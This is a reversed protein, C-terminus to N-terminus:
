GKRRAAHCPCPRHGHGRWGPPHGVEGSLNLKKKRLSVDASEIFGGGGYVDMYWEASVSGTLMVAWILTNIVILSLKTRVVETEGGERLDDFLIRLLSKRRQQQCAVFTAIGVARCNARSHAAGWPIRRRLQHWEVYAQERAPLAADSGGCDMSCIAWMRSLIRFRVVRGFNSHKVLVLLSRM